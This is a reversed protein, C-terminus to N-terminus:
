FLKLQRGKAAHRLMPEFPSEKEVMKRKDKAGQNHGYILKFHDDSQYQVHQVPDLCLDEEQRTMVPFGYFRNQHKLDGKTRTRELVFHAHAELREHIIRNALEPASAVRELITPQLGTDSEYGVSERATCMAALMTTGTGLFPDLVKQGKLSFMCILRYPLELPFAASRQRLGGNKMRQLVGQLDMWVDSFWTNREEWFYASKRRLSKQAPQSFDRKGGNRFILIYEHELTVYAGPPLMGSGMFKNPANTTKRWIITPLQSMGKAVFRSILEAHNAFLRFHGKFSRTADGINICVIGGPKLVRVIEDWVKDLHRHMGAFALDANSQALADAISPDASSFLDDWMQIMPYPPSTIVLDISRDGVDEMRRADGMIIRHSTEFPKEM